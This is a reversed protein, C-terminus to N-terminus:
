ANETDPLSLVGPSSEFFRDSKILSKIARSANGKRQDRDGDELPMQPIMAEILAEVSVGSGNVSLGLMDHATDFALKQVAGKPGRDGKLKESVQCYDVICSTIDDGDEDQGLVVDLLKFGYQSGEQGDKLKTVKVARESSNAVRTVELEVDAAAKLSSHGRSGKSADKGSHHVLLVMAGAQRGLTRCVSLAHSMDKGSNEDAGSNVQAFTDFVILDFPGFQEIDDKMKNVSSPDVLNPVVDACVTIDLDYPDLAHQHCYARGRQRFGEQGEAAVYLVRSKQVRRGNWEQGLALACCMDFALFTKGSGSEGFLVGLTAHPLFGKVLWKLTRAQSLFDGFSYFGHAGAKPRPPDPLLEFDEPSASDVNLTCGETQAQRLVSWFTKEENSYNGFSYWKNRIEETGQYLQDGQSWEDWLAEGEGATEHHVAMGIRVWHDHDGCPIWKLVEQIQADTLGIREKESKGVSQRERTRAGFRKDCAELLVSSPESVHDECGFDETDKTMDGTFTVFRSTNYTEFGFAGDEPHADSRNGLSARVFARIGTGSPSIEAYTGVILKEVEPDISGDSICHDFDLATVPCGPVMAMGIGKAKWRLAAAKAEEFTVLLSVDEEGGQHLKVKDDGPRRGRRTGSKAYYPVKRDKKGKVPNPEFKWILWQKLERLAAPARLNEITPAM